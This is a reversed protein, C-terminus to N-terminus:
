QDLRKAITLLDSILAYATQKIKPEEIEITLKGAFDTEITLASTTGSIRALPHSRDLTVPAVKGRANGNDLYGECLLKIVKGGAAAAAIMEASIASVGTRAIQLPTTKADMLVNLLAATKAAADWGDLDHSPDAEAWGMKQATQLASEFSKGAAMECLIYNTTGNLIGSFGTVRCGPLTERVLNFVPCGDMVTGEFLFHRDKKEALSELKDFNFAIPGKNATIVHKGHELATTIHATAPEGDEINLTTIEFVIDVSASAAIAIPSVQSYAPNSGSFSGNVTIEELARKLNIGTEDFLTGRSRTALAVVKYSFGYDAAWRENQENLIRCFEQGVSGFGLLALKLEPMM